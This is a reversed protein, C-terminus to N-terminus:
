TPPIGSVGDVCRFLRCGVGDLLLRVCSGDPVVGLGSLLPSREYEVIVSVIVVVIWTWKNGLLSSVVGSRRSELALM